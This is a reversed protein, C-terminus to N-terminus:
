RCCYTQDRKTFANLNFPSNLGIKSNQKDKLDSNEIHTGINIFETNNKRELEERIRTIEKPINDFDLTKYLPLSYLCRLSPFDIDLEALFKHGKNVIPNDGLSILDLSMFQM